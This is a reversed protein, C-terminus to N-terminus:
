DRGGPLTGPARPAPLGCRQSHQHSRASGEILVDDLMGLIEELTRRLMGVDIWVVEFDHETMQLARRELEAKAVILLDALPVESLEGASATLRRATDLSLKTTTSTVPSWRTIASTANVAASVVSCSFAM